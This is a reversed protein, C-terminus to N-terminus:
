VEVKSLYDKLKTIRPRYSDNQICKDVLYPKSLLYVKKKGRSIATYLLRRIHLFDNVSTDDLIVFVAKYESGQSAHVTSCYALVLDVLDQKEYTIIKNGFDVRLSEDEEDFSIITGTEGNYVDRQYDNQTHRVKDGIRFPDLTLMGDKNYKNQIFTNINDMGLEGKKYPAIVQVENLGYKQICNLYESYFYELLESGEGFEEYHFDESDVPDFVEGKNTMNCFKIINSDEQQRMVDTLLSVHVQKSDILDGLVNGAQVSPLQNNDGIILIRTSLDSSLLLNNFLMIDMMSAEDIVLVTKPDYKGRPKYENDKKMGLFKHITQAQFGGVCEELRRCAKATPSLLIVKFGCRAYINSLAKTISSKGSNHVVIGNAVFNHNEYCCIDYTDEEGLFEITDVKSYEPVGHGFHSYSDKGHKKLHDSHELVELNELNNNYHDGDIHHVCYISPNIFKLSNEVKTKQIFEDLSLNNLRAECLARHIEIRYSPSKRNKNSHNVAYPHYKGVTVLKDITKNSKKKEKKIKHRSINDIMVLDNCTLNKLEKFGEKTMIKHNATAKIFKGDQLTLKYVPKVGSYVIDKVRNLRILNQDKIYSRVYTDIDKRFGHSGRTPIGNYSKYLLELKRKRGLKARSYSILMDGTLCGACGTLVSVNHKLCEHVAEVQKENLEFPFDHIEEDVVSDRIDEGPVGYKNLAKIKEAISREIDVYPKYYVYGTQYGTIAGETIYIKSESNLKHVVSEYESNEGSLNLLSYFRSKLVSSKLGTSGELTAENKLAYLLGAELRVAATPNGNNKLFLEDIQRFTINNTLNLVKYPETQVVNLAESGLEEDLKKILLYPLGLKTCFDILPKMRRYDKISGKVKEVTKVGIGKIHSLKDTENFVVDISKDKYKDYIKLANQISIGKILSRALFNVVGERTKTDHLVQLTKIQLSLGYRGDVPVGSVIIDAGEFVDEFNGTVSINGYKNTLSGQIDGLKDIAKTALVGWKSKTDYYVIKEVKFKKEEITQMYLGREFLIACM